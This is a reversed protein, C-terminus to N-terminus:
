DAAPTKEADQKQLCRHIQNKEREGETVKINYSRLVESEYLGIVLVIDLSSLKKIKLIWTSKLPHPPSKIVLDMQLKNYFSTDINVLVYPARFLVYDLLRGINLM